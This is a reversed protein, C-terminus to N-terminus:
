WVNCKEHNNDRKKNEEGDPESEERGDDADLAPLGQEKNSDKAQEMIKKEIEGDDITEEKAM